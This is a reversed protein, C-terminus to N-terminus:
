DASMVLATAQSIQEVCVGPCAFSHMDFTVKIVSWSLVFHLSGPDGMKFAM